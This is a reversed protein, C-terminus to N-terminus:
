LIQMAKQSPALAATLATRARAGGSPIACFSSVYKLFIPIKMM